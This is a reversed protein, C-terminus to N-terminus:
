KPSEQAEAELKEIYDSINRLWEQDDNRAESRIEKLALIVRGLAERQGAEYRRDALEAYGRAYTKIFEYSSAGEILYDVASKLSTRDQGDIGFHEYMDAIIETQESM